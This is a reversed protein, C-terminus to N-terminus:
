VEEITESCLFVSSLFISCIYIIWYTSGQVELKEHSIGLYFFDIVLLFTQTFFVLISISFINNIFCSFDKLISEFKRLNRLAILPVKKKHIFYLFKNMAVYMSRLINVFAFFQVYGSAIICTSICISFCYMVGNISYYEHEILVGQVTKFGITFNLLVYFVMLICNFTELKKTNFFCSIENPIKLVSLENLNKCIFKKNFLFMLPTSSVNMTFAIADVYHAVKYWSSTVNVLESYRFVLFFGQLIIMILLFLVHYAFSFNDEIFIIKKNVKKIRYPASGFIQFM